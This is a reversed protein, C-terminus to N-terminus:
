LQGILFKDAKKTSNEWSQGAEFSEKKKKTLVNTERRQKEGDRCYTNVGGCVCV